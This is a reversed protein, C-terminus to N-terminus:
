FTKFALIKATRNVDEWSIKLSKRLHFSSKKGVEQQTMKWEISYINPLIQSHKGYTTM